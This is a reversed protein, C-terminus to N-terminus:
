WFVPEPVLTVGTEAHVTRQVHEAFAHVETATAGAHCVIALAHRSSLGVNGLRTGKPLGSREILWGASLKVGEPQPYRPMADGFRAELARAQEVSVVPNVFFSGCSRGNEDDPDWLMSKARRLALVTNRVDLLTPARELGALARTLEAYRPKAPEGRRLTFSVATVIFRDRDQAKFRSHRYALGLEDRPLSVFHGLTRDFARVRTITESVEQGYAGVNQIPTSGVLGPIGSLCELGSLGEKVSREVFADWPEGAGAHVNVSGATEEFSIGSIAMALVLGDVGQDSVVLNSGGGLVRVPLARAAAFALAEELDSEQSIRAFFRARGGVGLTTQENLPVDNEIQM